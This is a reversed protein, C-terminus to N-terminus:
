FNSGSISLDIDKDLRKKFSEETLYLSLTRNVVKQFTIDTNITKAKFDNYLGRILKVSTLKINDM